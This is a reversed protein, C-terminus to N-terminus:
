WLLLVVGLTILSVIGFFIQAAILILLDDNIIEKFSDRIM